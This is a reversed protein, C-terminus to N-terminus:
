LRHVNYFVHMLQVYFYLIFAEFNTIFSPLLILVYFGVLVYSGQRSGLASYHGRGTSQINRFLTGKGQTQRINNFLIM